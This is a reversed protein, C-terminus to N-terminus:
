TSSVFQYGVGRMNEICGMQGAEYGLKRRLSRVLPRLLAGADTRDTDLGHTARVLEELPIVENEQEVLRVLLKFERASLKVPKGGVCVRHQALDIHLQGRSLVTREATDPPRVLQQAAQAIQRARVLRGRVAVLLDQPQFPKIVYDDVGLGKGYRIDSDLARATLFIFPIHVWAPNANISEHLQYGNMQPMAIDSVILDVTEKSLAHLAAHGNDAVLATYGAKELIRCIYERVNPEDEVVLICASMEM